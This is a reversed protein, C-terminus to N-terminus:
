AYIAIPLIHIAPGKIEWEPQPLAFGQESGLKSLESIIQKLVPSPMKSLATKRILSVSGDKDVYQIVKGVVKFKGDVLDSMMPDNLYATELTVVARFSSPLNTSTVDVTNGAKLNNGLTEMQAKIKRYNNDQGKKSGQPKSDDFAMGLGLMEVVSDLTEVLPNKSLSGEFEIFMGPAINQGDSINAVIKKEVLMNRLQYFLSAPTHVREESVQKDSKEGKGTEKEGSLDIKLLSLLAEALGFAAKARETNTNNSSETKTVATVTSIGGQLMALLDFVMRQNLYVPVVLDNIAM